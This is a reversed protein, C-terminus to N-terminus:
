QSSAQSPIGAWVQQGMNPSYVGPDKYVKLREWAEKQLFTNSFCITIKAWNRCSFSWSHIIRGVSNTPNDFLGRHSHAHLVIFQGQAESCASIHLPSSGDWGRIYSFHMILNRSNMAGGRKWWYYRSCYPINDRRLLRARRVHFWRPYLLILTATNQIKELM